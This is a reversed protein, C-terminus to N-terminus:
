WHREQPRFPSLGHLATFRERRHEADQAVDKSFSAIPCNTSPTPRLWPWENRFTALPLSRPRPASYSSHDGDFWVKHFCVLISRDGIPLCGTWSLSTFLTRIQVGASSPALVLPHVAGPFLRFHHGALISRLSLNLPICQLVHSLIHCRSSAPVPSSGDVGTSRTEQYQAGSTVSSM